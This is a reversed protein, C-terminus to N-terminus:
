KEPLFNQELALTYQDLLVALDIVKGRGESSWGDPFKKCVNDKPIGTITSVEEVNVALKKYAASMANFRLEWIENRLKRAM